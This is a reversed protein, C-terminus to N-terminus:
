FVKRKSISVLVVGHAPVTSKFSHRFTGINKQLWLNRLKRRGSIQLEKWTATVELPKKNRNFLGLAKSGDAMNKIMLFTSDNGMIVRACKGLPDQDVAIVEPNCLVNLTFPDLHNMDGSYFLPSAMLCWLSMYAYQMSPPMKTQEAIGEKNAIGIYGIQIYDPDNWAGPKSYQRHKANNVAVDFIRDLEFGLDGSTRWSQAGVEAGWEWVDKMGYQCLNLLIDRNQQKLLSGMLIYPKKYAALDANKGEIQGYSCWDYKLFDFGWDAYQKADQVEHQYSGVYGGCTHPGPSSYIGAKLGKSHIYDTLKKMNPFYVNPIINGQADREEGKRGSDAKDYGNTGKKRNEWCDDINIYAYGVDAMGSSMLVDAAKRVDEDTIRTYYAYWDNWGMSPTLSLTDGAVLKFNKSDKGDKNKAMIVMNYTGKAPVTGTVLGATKDLKLTSPLNKITFHIPRNGQCPIHFIFPHGPRAGYVLPNNLRPRLAPKPTLIEYDDGANVQGCVKLCFSTLFFVTVVFKLVLIHRNM